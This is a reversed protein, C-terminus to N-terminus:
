YQKRYIYKNMTCENPLNSKMLFVKLNCKSIKHLTLKRVIISLVSSSCYMDYFEQIFKILCCFFFKQINFLCNRFCFLIPVSWDFQKWLSKKFLLRKHILSKHIVKKINIDAVMDINKICNVLFNKNLM